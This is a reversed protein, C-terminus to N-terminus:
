CHLAEKWMSRVLGNLLGPWLYEISGFKKWQWILQIWSFLKVFSSRHGVWDENYMPNRTTNYARQILSFSQPPLSAGFGTCFTSQAGKEFLFSTILHTESKCSFLFLNLESNIQDIQSWNFVSHDSGLFIWQVSTEWNVAPTQFANKGSCALVPSLYNVVSVRRRVGFSLTKTRTTWQIPSTVACDNCTTSVRHETGFKRRCHCGSAGFKLMRYM